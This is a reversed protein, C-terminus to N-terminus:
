SVLSSHKLWNAIALCVSFNVLMMGLAGLMKYNPNNNILSFLKTLFSEHTKKTEFDMTKESQSLIESNTESVKVLAKTRYLM